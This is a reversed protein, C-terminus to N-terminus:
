WTTAIDIGTPNWEVFGGTDCVIAYGLSTEVISGYPHLEFNAAVMIYSGFMKCGDERVWYEGEYGKRQLRAVIGSMDLNYYTESGIPGNIRGKNKSLATGDWSSTYTYSVNKPKPKPGPKEETTFEAMVYLLEDEFEIQLWEDGYKGIVTIEQSPNLVDYINTDITNDPTTRVNLRTNGVWRPHKPLEECLPIEEEPIEIVPLNENIYDNLEEVYTDFNEDHDLFKQVGGKLSTLADEEKNDSMSEFTVAEAVLAIPEGKLEEEKYYENAEVLISLTPITIVLTVLMVIAMVGYRKMLKTLHEMVFEKGKLRTFM